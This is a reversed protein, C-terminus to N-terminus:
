SVGVLQSGMQLLEDVGVVEGPPEFGEAAEGWVFERCLMSRPAVCIWFLDAGAFAPVLCRSYCSESRLSTTSAQGKHHSVMISAATQERSASTEKATTRDQAILVGLGGIQSPTM